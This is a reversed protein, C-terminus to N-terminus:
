VCCCPKYGSSNTKREREAALGSEMERVRRTDIEDPRVSPRPKRRSFLSFGESDVWGDM